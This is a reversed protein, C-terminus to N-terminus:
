KEYSEGIKEAYVLFRHTKHGITNVPYCTYIMLVERDRYFPFADNDKAHIIKTEYIKYTFNGYITNVKILDGVNVKPLNYLYQRNNHGAFIISGGEGPFLSGSFHGVGYKLIDLSDGQYIPQTIGVSEIELTGFKTGWLPYNILQKKVSNFSVSPYKIDEQEISVMNVINVYNQIKDSITFHIVLYIISAFFFSIVLQETIGKNSKKNRSLM